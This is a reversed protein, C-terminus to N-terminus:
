SSPVSCVSVGTTPDPTASGVTACAPATPMDRTRAAPPPEISIPVGFDFYHYRQAQVQRERRATSDYTVDTVRGREVRFTMRPASFRRNGPLTMRFLGDRVSVPARKRIPIQLLDTLDSGPEGRVNAPVVVRYYLNPDTGASRDRRFREYITDGMTIRNSNRSGLQTRDPALYQGDAVFHQKGFTGVIRVRFSPEALTRQAAARLERAAARTPHASGESDCGGAIAALVAIGIIGIIGIIWVRGQVVRRM